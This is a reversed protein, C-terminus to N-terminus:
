KQLIQLESKKKLIVSISQVYFYKYKVITVWFLNIVVQELGEQEGRGECYFSSQSAM